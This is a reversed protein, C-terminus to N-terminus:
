VGLVGGRERFSRSLICVVVGRTIITLCTSDASSNRASLFALLGTLTDKQDDRKEGVTEIFLRKTISVRERERMTMTEAVVKANTSERTSKLDVLRSSHSGKASEGSVFVVREKGFMEFM